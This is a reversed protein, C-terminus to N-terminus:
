EVQWWKIIQNMSMNPEHTSDHKSNTIRYRKEVIRVDLLLGLKPNRQRM